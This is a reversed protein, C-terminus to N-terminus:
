GNNQINQPVFNVSITAGQPPVATGHFQIANNTSNYTWGNTGNGAVMAGNVTVVITSVQPVQNLYFQTSLTAIQGAINSLSSAYSNDCISGIIGNTDTAIQMYRQGIITSPSAGIHSNVCANDMVTITSVNYRRTAGTSTTLSDLYTEYSSVTDLNSYAYDHDPVYNPDSTQYEWSGEVRSESSFDDEDSLIIVAFFSSSRLFAPNLASGMATKISSFAREDGSGNSGTTANTIFTNDLNPTSPVIVFVNTYPNIGDSFKAMGANGSNYGNLKPDAKYNDTGIVAMRYDYGQTQFNSIFSNFNTTMNTQLPSMSGSNDVVWLIDLQNNFVASSQKFTDGSPLISFTPSGAGCATLLGVMMLLTM